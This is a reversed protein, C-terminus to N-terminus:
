RTVGIAALDSPDFGSIPSYLEFEQRYGVPLADDGINIIGVIRGDFAYKKLGTDWKDINYTYVISNQNIQSSVYSIRSGSTSSSSVGEIIPIAGEDSQRFGNFTSRGNESITTRGLEITQPSEGAKYAMKYIEDTERTFNVNMDFDNDYDFPVHTGSNQMSINNVSYFIIFVDDGKMNDYDILAGFQRGQENESYDYGRLTDTYTRNWDYCTITTADTLSTSSNFSYELSELPYAGFIFNGKQTFESTGSSISTFVENAYHCYDYVEEYDGQTGRSNKESSMYIAKNRNIVAFYTGNPLTTDRIWNGNGDKYQVFFNNEDQWISNDDAILKSDDTEFPRRGAAVPHPNVNNNLLLGNNTLVYPSGSEFDKPRYYAPSGDYTYDCRYGYWRSWYCYDRAGLGYNSITGRYTKYVNKGDTGVTALPLVVYHETMEPNSQVILNRGWIGEDTSYRINVNKQAPTLQYSGDSIGIRYTQIDHPWANVLFLYEGALEVKRAAVANEEGGMRGRFVLMYKDPEKADSPAAVIINSSENDGSSKKGISLSASWAKVREDNKNDYWLEFTGNMDEDTNNVIVFGSGTADDPVMDIDGRFFYNLLSASYGAAYPILKSAYENHCHPDLGVPLYQDGEPFYRVRYWYLWSVAALHNVPDGEYLKKLYKRNVASDTWVELWNKSPYTHDPTFMTDDSLFNPNTYESLGVNVMTSVNPNVGTFTNTDFLNAVPVSGMANSKSLANMDFFIPHAAIRGIDANAKVWKEYYQYNGLSSIALVHGYDRVHAPVSLDQVLHTLQGLSRFTKGYNDDRTAKNIGTLAQYFYDRADFWSYNGGVNQTGKPMLAWQLSSNVTGKLGKNSIPDYFHNVSRVYQLYWVPVDEYLGGDRLWHWIRLNGAVVENIGNSIGLNKKLYSDLNFGEPTTVNSIYANMMQHSQTELALIDSQWCVIFLVMILLKRIM